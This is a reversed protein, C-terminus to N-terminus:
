MEKDVHDKIKQRLRKLIMSVGQPTVGIMHGIDRRGRGELRQSVVLKDRSNTCMQDLLIHAYAEAAVDEGSQLNDHLTLTAGGEPGTDIVTDLSIVHVQNISHRLARYYEHLMVKYAYTAFAVGRTPDYGHAAQCLGIAAVDYYEDADLNKSKLFSYILKHNDSVLNRQQDNLTFSM